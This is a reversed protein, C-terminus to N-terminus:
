GQYPEIEPIDGNGLEESHIVPDDDNGEDGDSEQEKAPEFLLPKLALSHRIPLPRM